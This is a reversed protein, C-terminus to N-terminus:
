MYNEIDVLAFVVIAIISRGGFEGVGNGTRMKRSDLDFVITKSTPVVDNFGERFGIWGNAIYSVAKTNCM